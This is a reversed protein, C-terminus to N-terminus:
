EGETQHLRYVYSGLGLLAASAGFGSANDVVTETSEETTTSITSQSTDTAVTTPTPSSTETPPETPTPTKADIDLAFSRLTELYETGYESGQFSGPEIQHGEPWGSFTAVNIRDVTKYEDAIELLERFHEPSREVYRESGFCSNHRDDFGPYATPMLDLGNDKAFRELAAFNERAHDRAEEWPVSGGIKLKGTWTMAADFQANLEAYEQPFGDIAHDQFDGILYPNTGDLSFETRIHDVLAQYSGYEEHIANKVDKSDENGGWALFDVDWFSITPRGARKSVNPLSLFESRIYEGHREIQESITRDGRWKLANSINYFMEIPINETASAEFFADAYKRDDMVSFNFMLRSIGSRRMWDIHQNIVTEDEMSYYGLCPEATTACNEWHPGLFNIYVAGIEVDVADLIGNDSLEDCGEIKSTSGIPANPDGAATVSSLGIGSAVVSGGLNELVARRSPGNM